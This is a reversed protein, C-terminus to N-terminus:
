KIIHFLPDFLTRLTSTVMPFQVMFAAVIPLVYAVSGQLFALDPTFRNPASRTIRSIMEDRNLQVLFM